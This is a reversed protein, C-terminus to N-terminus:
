GLIIYLKCTPSKKNWQFYLDDVRTMETRRMVDRGGNLEEVFSYYDAYVILNPFLVLNAETRVEARAVKPDDRAIARRRKRKTQHSISNKEGCPSKNPMIKEINACDGYSM